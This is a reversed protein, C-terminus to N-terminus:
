MREVGMNGGASRTGGGNIDDRPARGVQATFSLTFDPLRHSRGYQNYYGRWVGSLHYYTVSLNSEDVSRSADVASLTSLPLAVADISRSADSVQLCEHFPASSQYSCEVSYPPPAPCASSSLSPSLSPGKNSMGTRKSSKGHSRLTSISGAARLRPAVLPLLPRHVASGLPLILSSSFM